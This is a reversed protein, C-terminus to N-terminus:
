QGLVATKLTKAVQVQGAVKNVEKTLKANKAAAAKQAKAAKEAAKAKQEKESLVM